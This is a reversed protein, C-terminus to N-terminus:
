WTAEPHARALGQLEDLLARLAAGHEGDRGHASGSPPSAPPDDLTAAVRVQELVDRLEAALSSPDVAIGQDVLRREVPHCALLEGRLPWIADAAAQMREHSIPTGDGLRVVWRGAYDRHYAVEKVGKEAIAALVPDRLGALRQLLALRWAAFVVLRAMLAAFDDNRAEVFAVNRLEEADRFYAYADEDRDTGDAKGARALLLRAQGLLDLAINAIAVEDELEPARAVWEQLRHSMVLADDGLMLCYAALDEGSVGDPVTTDVGGLPDTFSTGFAWRANNDGVLDEYANFEDAPDPHDSHM